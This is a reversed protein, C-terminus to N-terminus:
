VGRGSVKTVCFACFGFGQPGFHRCGKLGFEALSGGRGLVGCM